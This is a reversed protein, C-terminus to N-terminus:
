VENGIILVFGQSDLSAKAAAGASTYNISGFSINVNTMNLFVLGFIPDVLINLLLDMNTTSFNAASKGTMFNFMDLVSSYDRDSIDQDFALANFYMFDMRKASSTDFFDPQNYARANSLFFAFDENSSTDLSISQNYLIMGNYMSNMNTVASTNSITILAEQAAMGVFM